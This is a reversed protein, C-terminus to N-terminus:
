WQGVKAATLLSFDGATTAVVPTEFGAATLLEGFESATRQRGASVSTLWFNWLATVLPGDKRDNWLMEHIFIRGGPSLVRASEKLLPLCEHDSCFHLFNGFLVGDCELRQWPTEHVNMGRLEVQNAVGYPELFPKIHRVSRPLDLLTIRIDPRDLALPIAFVGSGGGVDVLHSIRDFHGARVATVAAPLNRSHQALLREPRGWQNRSRLYRLRDWVTHTTRSFRRAREGKQLRKPIPAKLMGYLAVGVYFASRRDLYERGVDGLVYGGSRREALHLSCLVGLMADVGRVNLSTRAVIEEVTVIAGDALVTFLGVDDSWRLYQVLPVGAIGLAWLCSVDATPTRLEVSRVGERGGPTEVSAVARTGRGDRSSTVITTM